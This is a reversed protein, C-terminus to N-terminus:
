RHAQNRDKYEKELKKLVKGALMREAASLRTIFLIGDLHDLEHQFVRAPLDVLDEEFVKGNLDMARVRLRQHRAVNGRVGPISLCGEEDVVEEIADASPTPEPNIYVREGDPKSEGLANVVFLRASWGVQPAALGVGKERYMIDFMERAKRRVEDDVERLPLARKRLVPNPYIVLEM